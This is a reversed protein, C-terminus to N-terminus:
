MGICFETLSTAARHRLGTMEVVMPSAGTRQRRVIGGGIHRARDDIM